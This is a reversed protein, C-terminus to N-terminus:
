RRQQACASPCPSAGIMAACAAAPNYRPSASQRAPRWRRRSRSQDSDRARRVHQDVAISLLCPRAAGPLSSRGCRRRPACSRPRSRAAPSSLRLHDVAQKAFPEIRQGIREIGTKTEVQDPQRRAAGLDHHLLLAIEVGIDVVIVFSGRQDVADGRADAAPADDHMQRLIGMDGLAGHHGHRRLMMERGRCPRM